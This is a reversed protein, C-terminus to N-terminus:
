ELADDGDGDARHRELAGQGLATITYTRPADRTYTRAAAVWGRHRFRKLARRVVDPHVELGRAVTEATCNPQRAVFALSRWPVNNPKTRAARRHLHRNAREVHRTATDLCTRWQAYVRLRTELAREVSNVDPPLGRAFRRWALRAANTESSGRAKM